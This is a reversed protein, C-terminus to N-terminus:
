IDEQKSIQIIQITKTQSRNMHEDYGIRKLFDLGNELSFSVVGMFIMFYILGDGLMLIHIVPDTFKVYLLLGATAVFSITAIYKGIKHM